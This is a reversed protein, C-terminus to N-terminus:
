NTEAECTVAAMVTASIADAPVALTVTKLGAGPPPVEAMRVKVVLLGTGEVVVREGEEIVAPPDAKVRVTLPPLKVEVLTTL